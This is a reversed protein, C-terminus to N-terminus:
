DMSRQRKRLFSACLLAIIMLISCIKLIFPVDLFTALTGALIAGLGYGLNYITSFYAVTVSRDNSPAYHGLLTWESVVRFGGAVGYLAMLIFFSVIDVTESIFFFVFALISSSSVLIWRYDVKDMLKGVPIRLLVDVTGRIGLLFAILSAAIGLSEEAYVIFITLFCAYTLSYSLRMFSLIILERSHIVHSLSAMPDSKQEKISKKGIGGVAFLPILGIIPIFAAIQFVQVYNFNTLLMSCVFPGLTLALGYSVLFTGMTEGEKGETAIAQARSVTLPVILAIAVAHLIRIPYFWEISPVISYLLQSAGLILASAIIAYTGNVREILIGTPIKMLILSLSLIGIIIGLEVTNAGIETLYLPLIPRTTEYSLYTTLSNLTILYFEKPYRSTGSM